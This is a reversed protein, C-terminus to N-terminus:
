WYCLSLGRWSFKWFLSIKLRVLSFNEITVEGVGGGCQVYRNKLLWEKVFKLIIIVNKLLHWKREQMELWWNNESYQFNTEFSRKILSNNIVDCKNRVISIYKNRLLQIFNNTRLNESIGYAYPLSHPCKKTISYPVGWKLEGIKQSILVAKLNFIPHFSAFAWYPKEFFTEWQFKIKWFNEFHDYLTRLHSM